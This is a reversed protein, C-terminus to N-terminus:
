RGPNQRRRQRARDAAPRQAPMGVPTRERRPQVAREQQRKTRYRTSQAPLAPEPLHLFVDLKPRGYNQMASVAEPEHRTCSILLGMAILTMLISTGGSSILPLQIGTVPMIGIVYAINVFAQIVVISALSASLLSLFKNNQKRACRLSVLLVGAFLGIVIVSGIFGFEEGVIAFVFDNHGEPLYFWKARSQGLGLGLLGGDGLSLFGQYVQWQSETSADVNGFLAKTFVTLRDSRFSTFSAMLVALLMMSLLGLLLIRLSFGSFYLVLWSVLGIMVAMGLDHQLSVLVLCLVAVGIFKIQASSRDKDTRCSGFLYAGWVALMIKAFESPQFTFLKFDLWSQSGVEDRGTGLPTLVLLLLVVAAFMGAASFRALLGPPIRLTIWLLIMGLVVYFLQRNPTLWANNDEIQSWTPASSYVMMVGVMALLMTITMLIEYNFLPRNLADQVRRSFFGGGQRQRAPPQPQRNSM